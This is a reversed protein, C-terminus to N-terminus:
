FKYTIAFRIDQAEEVPNMGAAQAEDMTLPAGDDGFFSNSGTYDYDMKTYRANFSLYETLPKDYYVEWATGRTAIKSGAMTDEGYTVSRWYKSGKNWEIGLRGDETIPCPMNLGIWTSSGTESEDSGLMGGTGYDGKPRTKSQAWSAFFRTDDLFDSIGDGIGEAKFMVTFLDM